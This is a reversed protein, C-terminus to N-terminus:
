ATACLMRHQCSQCKATHSQFRTKSQTVFVTQPQGGKIIQRCKVKTKDVAAPKADQVSVPPHKQRILEPEKKPPTAVPIHRGEIQDGMIHPPRGRGGSHRVLHQSHGSEFQAM